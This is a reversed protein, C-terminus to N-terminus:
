KVWVSGMFDYSYPLLCTEFVGGLHADPRGDVLGLQALLGARDEREFVRFLADYRPGSFERLERRLREIGETTFGTYDGREHRQRAQFHDILRAIDTGQNAMKQFAKAAAAFHKKRNAVYVLRFSPLAQFLRRYDVLYSKFGATTDDGADIYAFNVAPAAGKKAASLYVPNKDVFYRVTRSQRTKSAYYKTPLIGTPLGLADTFLSVREQETPFFQAQPHNLAFDLIMLKRRVVFPPHSRRNRNDSTGIAEYFRRACLHLVATQDRSALATVHKNATLQQILRQRTGGRDRGMYGDYQRGLFYGGHVAVTYLFAAQQETYGFQLLGSPGPAEPTM